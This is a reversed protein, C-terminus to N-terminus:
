GRRLTDLDVPYTEIEEGALLRKGDEMAAAHNPDSALVAVRWWIEIVEHVGDLRFTERAEDLAAAYAATFETRQKPRCRPGSPTPAANM